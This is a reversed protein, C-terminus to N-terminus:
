PSPIEEVSGDAAYGPIFRQQAAAAAADKSLGAALDAAVAKFAPHLAKILAREEPAAAEIAAAITLWSSLPLGAIDVSPLLAGLISLLASM